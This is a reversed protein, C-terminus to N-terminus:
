VEIEKEETNWPTVNIELTVDTLTILFNYTYKKGKECVIQSLPISAEKNTILTNGHNISYSLNVTISAAAHTQPLLILSYIWGQDPVSTDTEVLQHNGGSMFSTNNINWTDTVMNYVGTNYIADNNIVLEFDHLTIDINEVPNGTSVAFDIRSLLHKLLLGITGNDTASKGPVDAAMLDFQSDPDDPITCTINKDPYSVSINNNGYPSYAFFSVTQNEPWYKIHDYHWQNNNNKYIHENEMLLFPVVANVSAYVGFNKLTSTSIAEARTSTAQDVQPSFSIAAAQGPKVPLDEGGCSISLTASLIIICIQKIPKSM